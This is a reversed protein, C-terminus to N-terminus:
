APPPGRHRTDRAGTRGHCQSRGRRQSEGARAQGYPDALDRLAREDEGGTVGLYVVPMASPDAKAVVPEEADDPLLSRVQGLNDRITALTADMDTGYEFEAVVVSFSDGSSSQLTKLGGVKGMAEEIHKTVETEVEEPGAGPYVTTVTAVPITVDPMLDINVRGALLIGLVVIALFMMLVTVPRHVGFQFINM